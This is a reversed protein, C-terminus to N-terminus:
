LARLSHYRPVSRYWDPRKRRVRALQGCLEVAARDGVAKTLEVREHRGIGRRDVLALSRFVWRDDYRDHRLVVRHRLPIQEVGAHRASLTQYHESTLPLRDGYSYAIHRPTPAPRLDHGDLQHLNTIHRLCERRILAPPIPTSQIM